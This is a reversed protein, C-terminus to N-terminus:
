LASRDKSQGLMTTCEGAPSICIAYQTLSVPKYFCEPWYWLSQNCETVHPSETNAHALLASKFPM